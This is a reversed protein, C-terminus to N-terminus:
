RISEVAVAEDGLVVAGPAQQAAIDVAGPHVLGEDPVLTGPHTRAAAAIQVGVV